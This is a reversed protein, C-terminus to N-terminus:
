NTKEDTRKTKPSNGTASKSAKALIPLICTQIM